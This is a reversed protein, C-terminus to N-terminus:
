ETTQSKVMNKRFLEEGELERWKRSITTAAMAEARVIPLFLAFMMELQAELTEIRKVMEETTM